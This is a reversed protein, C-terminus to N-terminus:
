HWQGESIGYLGGPLGPRYIPSDISGIFLFFYFEIGFIFKISAM